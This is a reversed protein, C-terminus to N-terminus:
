PAVHVHHGAGSGVEPMAVGGEKRLVLGRVRAIRIYFRRDFRAEAAVLRARRQETRDPMVAREETGRELLLPLRAFLPRFIRSVISCDNIACEPIIRTIRTGANRRHIFAEKRLRGCGGLEGEFEVVLEALLMRKRSTVCPRPPSDRM